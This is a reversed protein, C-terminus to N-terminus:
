YQMVCYVVTPHQFQYWRNWKYDRTCGNSNAAGPVIDIVHVTGKAKCAAAPVVWGPGSPFKYCYTRVLYLELCMRYGSQTIYPSEPDSCTDRSYDVTLVKYTGKTGNCSGTGEFTGAEDVGICEGVRAPAPPPAQTTPAAKPPTYTDAPYPDRTSTLVPAKGDAQSSSPKGRLTTYALVAVVCAGIVLVLVGGIIGLILGASSKRPPPPPPAGFMPPVAGPYPLNGPSGPYNPQPPLTV